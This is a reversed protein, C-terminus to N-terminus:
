KANLIYDVVNVADTITVQGDNNADCRVADANSVVVLYYKATASQYDLSGPTVATITAVGEGKLTVAGTDSDVEAVSTDSCSYTATLGESANLKPAAIPKDPSVIAVNRDFTFVPTDGKSNITLEYSTSLSYYDDNGEFTATIIAHGYYKFTVTGDANVTAVDPNSSSYVIDLGNPNNLTPLVVDDGHTFEYSDSSYAIEPSIRGDGVTLVEPVIIDSVAFYATNAALQEENDIPKFCIQTDDGDLTALAFYTTGGTQSTAKDNGALDNAVFFDDTADDAVSTLEITENSSKLLVGQGAKINRDTVETLNLFRGIRDVAYVTTNEDAVRNVNSKYYTTWYSDGIKSATVQVHKKTLYGGAGTHACTHDITAGVTTGDEGVLSTCGEFVSSSNQIKSPVWGDGVIIARLSSCDMFMKTISSGSTNKTFDIGSLDIVGLSSCSSFMGWMSVDKANKLKDLGKISTLSRCGSFMSMMNSVNETHFGSVDVTSLEFDRFFFDTMNTVISTNLHELGVVELLYVYSKLLYQMTTNPCASCSEDITIKLIHKSNTKPSWADTGGVYVSADKPPEGYYMTANWYYGDGNIDTLVMYLRDTSHVYCTFGLLAVLMTFLRKTM